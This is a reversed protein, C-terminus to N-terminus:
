GREGGAAHLEHALGGILAYGLVWVLATGRVFTSTFLNACPVAAAMGWLGCSLARGWPTRGAAWLSGTYQWFHGLYALLCALGAFGMTSGVVLYLNNTDAESKKVNPLFGYFEPRGINLQYNGTGVGLPFNQAMMALAPMWEIWRKKVVPGPKANGAGAAEDVVIEAPKFVPGEEYPNLLERSAQRNLPAVAAVVAMLLVLVGVVAATTTGRTWNLAMLVLVLALVWVLPPLLITLVGGLVVGAAWYREWSLESWLTLGFFLPLVITLFGSYAGRSGFTSAVQALETATAYQVLGYLVVVTSSALLVRVAARRRDDGVLVNAFLMYVAAFYLVMQVIELAAEKLSTAGLGSLVAVVLWAWVHRPAWLLTRWRRSATVWLLWVGVVLVAVVDALAIYPGHKRDVAYAFQGPAIFVLALALWYLWQPARARQAEASQEAPQEPVGTAEVM